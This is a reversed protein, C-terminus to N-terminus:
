LHFLGTVSCHALLGRSFFVVACLASLQVDYNVCM